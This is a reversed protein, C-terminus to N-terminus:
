AFTCEVVEIYATWRLGAAVADTGAVTIQFRNTLALASLTVSAGLCGNNFPGTITAPTGGVITLVGAVTQGMAVQSISFSNTAALNVGVADVRIFYAGTRPLEVTTLGGSRNLIAGATFVNTKAVYRSVQSDGRNVGATSKGSAFADQNDNYAHASNGAAQSNNGSVRNASGGGIFGGTNSFNPAIAVVENQTGAVIAQSGIAGGGFTTISNLTGAGIFADVGSSTNSLGAGILSRNGHPFGGADTITNSSGGVISANNGTTILNLNGGGIFCQFSADAVLATTNDIRNGSGGSIVNFNSAFPVKPLIVNVGGGGIFNLSGTSENLTGGCIVNANGQQQTAPNLKNLRGGCIVSTEGDISNGEGGGIFNREFAIGAPFNANPGTQDIVNNLGGCIVNYDRNDTGVSGTAQIINTEGGGIFSRLPAHSLNLIQNTFGGVIGSETCGVNITNTSGGGITAYNASATNNLGGSITAGQSPAVHGSGGGITAFIGSANNNNGGSVTAFANAANNLFGGGITSQTGSATNASGGGITADNASATNNEGGGITAFTGGIFINNTFGGAITSSQDGATNTAGGGITSQIGSANNNQGGAITSNIGSAVNAAGGGVTAFTNNATNSQGGGVTSQGGSATNNIGGSVVSEIGSATTDIGFGVSGIGRFVNDWQTGTVTGARIAGKAYDFGFRTSAGEQTSFPFTWASPIIAGLFAPNLQVTSVGSVSDPAYEWVHGGLTTTNITTANVIDFNGVIANIEGFLGKDAVVECAVLKNIAGIDNIKINELQFDRPVLGFSRDVCHVHSSM